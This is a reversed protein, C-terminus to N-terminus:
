IERTGRLPFFPSVDVGREQHLFATEDRSERWGDDRPDSNDAWDWGQSGPRSRRIRKRGSSSSTSFLCAERRRARSFLHPAAVEWSSSSPPLRLRPASPHRSLIRRPPLRSSHLRFPSDPSSPPLPRTSSFFLSSLIHKSVGTSLSSRESTLVQITAHISHNGSVM